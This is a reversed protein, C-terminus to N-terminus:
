VCMLEDKDKQSALSTKAWATPWLALIAFGTTAANELASGAGYPLSGPVQIRWPAELGGNNPVLM